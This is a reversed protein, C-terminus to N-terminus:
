IKSLRRFEDLDLYARKLNGEIVDLYESATRRPAKQVPANSPRAVPRPKPQEESEEETEEEIEQGPEEYEEGVEEKTEYEEEPQEEPYDVRPIVKKKKKGLMM